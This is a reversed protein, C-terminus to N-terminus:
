QDSQNHENKKPNSSYQDLSRQPFKPAHSNGFSTHMMGIRMCQRTCDGDVFQMVGLDNTEESLCGICFSQSSETGKAYAGSLKESTRAAFLRSAEANCAMRPIGNAILPVHNTTGRQM